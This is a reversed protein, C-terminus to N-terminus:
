WRCRFGPLCARRHGREESVEACSRRPPHQAVEHLCRPDRLAEGEDDSGEHHERPTAHTADTERGSDLSKVASAHRKQKAAAQRKHHGSPHTQILPPVRVM